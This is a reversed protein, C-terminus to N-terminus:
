RAAHDYVPTRARSEIGQSKIADGAQDAAIENPM